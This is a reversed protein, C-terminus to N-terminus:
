KELEKKVVLNGVVCVFKNVKIEEECLCFLFM